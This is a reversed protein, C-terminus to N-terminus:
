MLRNVQSGNEFVSNARETFGTNEVAAHNSSLNVSHEYPHNPICLFRETLPM